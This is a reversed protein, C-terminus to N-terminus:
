RREKEAAEKLEHLMRISLNHLKKKPVHFFLRKVPGAQFIERSRLVVTKNEETFIFEHRAHIGHKAGSWVIRKGPIVEEVLPEVHIPLAFPRICFNFRKGETLRDHESSSDGLVSSWEKWCTLDTFIDWVTNIDAHITVTYDIEM